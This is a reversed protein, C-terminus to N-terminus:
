KVTPLTSLASALSASLTSMQAMASELATFQRRLAAERLELREELQEIREDALKIQADWRDTARDVVGGSDLITGLLDDFSDALGSTITVSGLSLLGGAGTVDATSATIALLMGDYDGAGSLTQGSGTAAVGGITGAVDLGAFTGELGFDNADITFQSGSGYRTETLVISGGSAVAGITSIGADSLAQSIATVAADIDDTPEITINAVKSGSTITFSSSSGPPVYSSGTVSGRTAAQTIEVTHTGTLAAGAAKTVSVRSDTASTMRAFLEMVGDFDAALADRLKTSDFDVSGDRNLSIGVSSATKYAGDIGSVSGSIASRLSLKLSRATSDSSLPGASPGSETATQTAKKILDLAANVNGVFSTVSDVAADVNRNVNVTVPGTTVQNLTLTVGGILDDIVNSAREVTVPNTSGIQIRSDLGQEILDFGGFLAQDSSVTFQSADGTADSKLFLQMTGADVTVATATVGQDLANVQNVLQAVTTNADTVIDHQEGDITLSFTGAGVLDTLASFTSTSAMQHASALREVTFSLSSQTPTGSVSASVADANSSTASSMALWDSPDDLKRISDRVTSLKSEIQSWANNRQQYLSKRTEIQNIPIRELDMLQSIISNTDLGSALGGINFLPITM